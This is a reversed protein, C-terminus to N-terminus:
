KVSLASKPLFAFNSVSFPFETNIVGNYDPNKWAIFLLIAFHKELLRAFLIFNFAM